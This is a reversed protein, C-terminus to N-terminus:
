KNLTCLAVKMPKNNVQIKSKIEAICAINYGTPQHRQLHKDNSTASVQWWSVRNDYHALVIRTSLQKSLCSHPNHVNYMKYALRIHTTNKWTMYIPTYYCYHYYANTYPRRGSFQYWTNNGIRIVTDSFKDCCIQWNVTGRKSPSDRKLPKLLLCPTPVTLVKESHQFYGLGWNQSNKQEKLM